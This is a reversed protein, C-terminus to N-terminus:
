AACSLREKQAVHKGANNRESTCIKYLPRPQLRFRTKWNFNGCLFDVSKLRESCAWELHNFNILKAVGPFDSNTGGALVTYTKNWLAGIDVAALRDNIIVSTLRLLNQRYLLDILEMFSKLFRSDHFYSTEGFASLNMELMSDIDTLRNYRFFVKQAYLKKLEQNIKKRTKGPFVRMYNEFSFNHQGPFFLYGTEDVSVRSDGVVHFPNEIYRLFLKEPIHDLVTQFSLGRDAIIKNQEIWTKGRWTEGPFHGYYAEEEIWTLPLFCSTQYNRELLMFYLPRKFHKMFCARVPWLDFISNRPWMREWVQRCKEPNEVIHISAM